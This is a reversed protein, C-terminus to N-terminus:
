RPLLNHAGGKAWSLPGKTQDHKQVNAKRSYSWESARSAVEEQKQSRKEAVLLAQRRQSDVGQISMEDRRALQRHSQQKPSEPQTSVNVEAPLALRVDRARATQVRKSPGHRSAVVKGFSLQAEVNSSKLKSREENTLGFGEEGHKNEWFDLLEPERELNLICHGRDRMHSQIALTSDRATGCYLCEHWVRIQTALYGLFSESILKQQPIFLGHVTLMHSLTSELSEDYGKSDQQCFLCQLPSIVDQDTENSTEEESVEQNAEEVADSRPQVRHNFTDLSIPPLSAVRRKINYVSINVDINSEEAFM